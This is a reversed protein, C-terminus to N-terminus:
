AFLKHLGAYFEAAMEVVNKVYWLSNQKGYDVDVNENPAVRIISYDDHPHFKKFGCYTLAKQKFYNEYLLYEIVKGVTYDEHELIVDFCNSITSNSPKIPMKGSDIMTSLGKFKSYLIDCASKIITKNDFVGVSEVTFDFSNPVFYRKADLLYFNKEAFEKTEDDADKMSEKMESWKENAAVPDVTNEYYCASVVAFSSDQSPTAVSIECELKISEGEIGGISPRLRTLIIYDGTIENPPFIRKVEEPTLYDGTQKNRVKFNETTVYIVGDTDNSVDLEVTYNDIPASLNILHIPICSLRSKIIENNLRGTNKHIVCKNQDSPSTIFAATRIDSIITRRLANALSVDLGSLRFKLEGVEEIIESISPKSLKGLNSPLNSMPSVEVDMQKASEDELSKGDEETASAETASAETASAETASDELRMKNAFEESLTSTNEPEQNVEESLTINM